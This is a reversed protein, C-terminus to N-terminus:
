SNIITRLFFAIWGGLKYNNSAPVWPLFLTIGYVPYTLMNLAYRLMLYTRPGIVSIYILIHLWVQWDSVAQVFHRVAFHEEEGVSSNDYERIVLDAKSPMLTSNRSESKRWIVFSREEPTLFSATLPFDVLVPYHVWSWCWTLWKCGNPPYSVLSLLWALSLLQSDKLFRLSRNDNLGWLKHSLVCSYGLGDWNEVWEPCSVSLM